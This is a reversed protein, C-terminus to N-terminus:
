PSNGAHPFLDSRVLEEGEFINVRVERRGYVNLIHAIDEDIMRQGGFAPCKTRLAEGTKVLTIDYSVKDM